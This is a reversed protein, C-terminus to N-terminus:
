TDSSDVILPFYEKILKNPESSTFTLVMGYNIGGMYRTMIHPSIRNNNWSITKRCDQVSVSIHWQDKFTKGFLFQLHMNSCVQFSVLLVPFLLLSKHGAFIYFARFAHYEMDNTQRSLLPSYRVRTEASILKFVLFAVRTHALHIIIIFVLESVIYFGFANLFECLICPMFASLVLHLHAQRIKLTDICGYVIKTIFQSSKLGACLWMRWRHWVVCPVPVLSINM